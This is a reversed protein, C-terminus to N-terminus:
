RLLTLGGAVKQSENNSDLYKIMYVYVGQACNVGNNRGDWQPVQYNSRFMLNGWRDYISCEEITLNQSTFFSWVDNNSDGNPSFVNPAYFHEPQKEITLFFSSEYSCGSIHELYLIVNTSEATSFNASMCTPCDVVSEPSWEVQWEQTDLGLNIEFLTNQFVTIDSLTPIDNFNGIRPLDIEIQEVCNPASELILSVQNETNNYVTEFGEDGNDWTIFWTTGDDVSLNYELADCDIELQPAPPEIVYSVNAILLSDCDFATPVTTIFQGSEYIWDNGIALSDDPCLLTDMITIPCPMVDLMILDDDDETGSNNGPTSNIDVENDVLIQAYNTQPGSEIVKVTINLTRSEGVELPGVKWLGTANNYHGNSDDTIYYFAPSLQDRVFSGSSSEPGNNTVTITFIIDEGTQPSMNSVTKELALNAEKTGCIEPMGPIIRCQYEGYDGEEDNGDGFAGQRNHGINCIQVNTNVYPSIHGGNSIAVANRNNGTPKIPCTFIMDPGSTISQKNNSGWSRITGDVLIASSSIHHDHTSMTSIYAVNRLQGDVCNMGVKSWSSVEQRNGVGLAGEDNAGLVHVTGDGDLVFYSHFGAEIQAIGFVSVDPQVVLKTLTTLNNSAGDGLYSNPGAAYLNDDSGLILLTRYGVGFNLVSIGEPMDLMTWDSNSADSQFSKAGDGTIYADGAETSFVLYGDRDGTANSNNNNNDSGSGAAGQWKNVDCVTIGPPLSLNTLGWASGNTRTADILLDEEGIAYIQNNTGLFVAQTRGGMAGWRPVVGPPMFYNPSPINSLVTSYVTGSPAFDQGTISYGNSTKAIQAHFSAQIISNNGIDCLDITSPDCQAAAQNFVGFNTVMLIAVLVILIDKFAHPRFKIHFSTSNM